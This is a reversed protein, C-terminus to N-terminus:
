QKPKINNLDGRTLLGLLLWLGFDINVILHNDGKIINVFVLVNIQIYFIIVGIGILECQLYFSAIM